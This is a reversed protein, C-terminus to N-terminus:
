MEDVRSRDGNSFSTILNPQRKEIKEFNWAPKHAYFTNNTSKNNVIEFSNNQHTTTQVLHYNNSLYYNKYAFNSDTKRFDSDQCTQNFASKKKSNSTKLRKTFSKTMKGKMPSSAADADLTGSTTKKM